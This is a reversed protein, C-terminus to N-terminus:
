GGALTLIIVMHLQSIDEIINLLHLLQNCMAYVMIRTHQKMSQHLCSWLGLTVAAHSRWPCSTTDHEYSYQFIWNFYLFKLALGIYSCIM